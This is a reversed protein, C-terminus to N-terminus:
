KSINDLIFKEAVPLFLKHGAANLHAHDGPSQFYKKRFDADDAKITGDAAADFFPVKNKKCVAAIEKIVRQRNSGQYNEVTWPSFWLIKAGPNRKKLGKLLEDTHKRFDKVGVSDLLDTDNHGAIVVVYDLSDPMGLYRKYMAEGFRESDMSVRSGNRGYNIYDMNYKEAFLCHWAETYPRKHNRVYSDGIFGIKKGFLLPNYQGPSLNDLWSSVEEAMADHYAFPTDFVWGHGGVPYIHLSANCGHDLMAKYYPLANTLVPVAKDDSSALILAPPTSETVLQDTSYQKVVAENKADSGLFNAVSGRHSGQQGMTIVPYFLIQFNPRLAMPFSTAAYSALHGGASTGMIGIDAPNIHWAAASDRLMKMAAKADSVPIERNGKPMRYRLVAYAMGRANYFPAWQSPNKISTQAYGGGPIALLARGSAKSADPLFVKLFAGGDPTINLQFERNDASVSTPALFPLALFSAVSLAM